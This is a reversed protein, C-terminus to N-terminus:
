TSAQDAVCVRILSSRLIDVAIQVLIQWTRLSFRVRFTTSQGRLALQLVLKDTDGEIMQPAVITEELSRSAAHTTRREHRVPMYNFKMEKHRGKTYKM